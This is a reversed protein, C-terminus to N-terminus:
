GVLWHRSSQRIRAQEGDLAEFVSVDSAPASLSRLTQRVAAELSSWLPASPTMTALLRSM